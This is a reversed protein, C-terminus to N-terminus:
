ISIITDPAWSAISLSKNEAKEVVVQVHSPFM